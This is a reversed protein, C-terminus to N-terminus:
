SYNLISCIGLFGSIRSFYADQKHYFLDRRRADTNLYGRLALKWINYTNLTTHAELSAIHM